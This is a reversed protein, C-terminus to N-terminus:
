PKSKQAQSPDTLIEKEEQNLKPLNYKELLKDREELNDMKNAYLQQYYDRIKQIETNDTTIEGNENRIKNLIKADTNMLSIPRLNEKTTADKDPKAILTITAEYFSNPFKGEEAIKQFLKILIPTLEERFNQYFEVTFGDPGPSKNTPLNRIVTKIETSTIPRNLNEIEEQSHTRFYRLVPASGPTQALYWPVQSDLGFYRLASMPKNTLTALTLPIRLITDFQQHTSSHSLPNQAWYQSVQLHFRTQPDRALCGLHELRRALPVLDWPLQSFPGPSGLDTSALQHTCQTRDCGATHNCYDQPQDRGM